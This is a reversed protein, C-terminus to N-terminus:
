DTFITNLWFKIPKIRYFKCWVLRKAANLITLKKRSNSTNFKILEPKYKYFSTKSIKKNKLLTNM